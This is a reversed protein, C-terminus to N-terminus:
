KYNEFYLEAKDQNLKQTKTKVEKGNKIVFEELIGGGETHNYSKELHRIKVLSDGQWKNIIKYHTCCNGGDVSSIVTKNKENTLLEYTSSTQTIRKFNSDMIILYEAIMRNAFWPRQLVIDIKGDFNMDRRQIESNRWSMEDFDFQNKLEFRDKNKVYLYTPTTISDLLDSYMSEIFVFDAFGNQAKGYMAYTFENKIITDKEFKTVDLFDMISDLSLRFLSDIRADDYSYIDIPKQKNEEAEKAKKEEAEKKLREKIMELEEKSFETKDNSTVSKQNCSFFLPLLLISLIYHKM